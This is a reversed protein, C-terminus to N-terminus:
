EVLPLNEPPLPDKRKQEDLFGLWQLQRYAFNLDANPSVGITAQKLDLGLPLLKESM